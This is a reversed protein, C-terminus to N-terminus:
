RGGHTHVRTGRDVALIVDFPHRRIDEYRVDVISAEGLQQRQVLNSHMQQSWVNLVTDGVEMLDLAGTQTGQLLKTLYCLSAIVVEPDRHCHM